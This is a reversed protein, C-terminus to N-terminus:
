EIAKAVKAAAQDAIGEILPETAPLGLAVAKALDAVAVEGAAAEAAETHEPKVQTAVKTAATNKATQQDEDKVFGLELAGLKLSRLRGYFAGALALAVGATLAFIVVTDAYDTEDTVKFAPKAAARNARLRAERRRLNRKCIQRQKRSAKKKCKRKSQANIVKKTKAAGPKFVPESVTKQKAKFTFDANTSSFAYLTVGVILLGAAVLLRALRKEGRDLPPPKQADSSVAKAVTEPVDPDGEPM